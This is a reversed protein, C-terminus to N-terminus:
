PTLRLAALPAIPPGCAGKGIAGAGNRSGERVVSERKTLRNSLARSRSRYHQISPQLVNRVGGFDASEWSSRM